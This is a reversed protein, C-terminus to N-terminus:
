NLNYVPVVQYAYFIYNLTHLCCVIPYSHRPITQRYQCLQVKLIQKTLLWVTGWAIASRLKVVVARSKAVKIIIKYKIAQGIQFSKIKFRRYFRRYRRLLCNFSDFRLSISHLELKLMKLMKCIKTQDIQGPEQLVCLAAHSQCSQYQPLYTWSGLQM